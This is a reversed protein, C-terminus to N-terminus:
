KIKAVTEKLITAEPVYVTTGDDEGLKLLVTSTM